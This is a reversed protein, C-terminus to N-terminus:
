DRGPVGPGKCRFAFIRLQKAKMRSDTASSARAKRFDGRVVPGCYRPSVMMFRRSNRLDIVASAPALMTDAGATQDGALACDRCSVRSITESLPGLLTSM